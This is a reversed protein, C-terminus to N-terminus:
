VCRSTYLLCTICLQQSPIVTIIGNDVHGKASYFLIKTNGFILKDENELIPHHVKPFLVPYNRKFIHILSLVTCPNTNCWFCPFTYDANGPRDRICM